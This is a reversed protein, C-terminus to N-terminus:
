TGELKGELLFEDSIDLKGVSAELEDRVLGLKTRPCEDCNDLKGVSDELDDRELELETGDNLVLAPGENLGDIIGVGIEV